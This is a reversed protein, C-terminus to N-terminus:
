PMQQQKKLWCSQSHTMIDSDSMKGTPKELIKRKSKSIPQPTPPQPNPPDFAFLVAKAFVTTLQTHASNLKKVPFDLTCSKKNLHYRQFFMMFALSLTFYCVTHGWWHVSQLLTAVLIIWICMTQIICRKHAQHVLFVIMQLMKDKGNIYRECKVM